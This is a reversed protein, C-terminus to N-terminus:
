SSVHAKRNCAAVTLSDNVQAKRLWAPISPRAHESNVSRQSVGALASRYTSSDEERAALSNTKRLQRFQLLKESIDHM